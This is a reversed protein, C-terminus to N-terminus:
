TMWTPYATNDSEKYSRPDDARLGVVWKQALFNLKTFEDTMALPQNSRCTIYLRAGGLPFPTFYLKHPLLDWFMSMLIWQGQRLESLGKGWVEGTLTLSKGARFAYASREGVGAPIKHSEYQIDDGFFGDVSTLHIWYGNRLDGDTGDNFTIGNYECPGDLLM